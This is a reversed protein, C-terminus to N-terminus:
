HKATSHTAHASAAAPCGQMWAIGCAADAQSSTPGLRSLVTASILIMSLVFVAMAVPAYQVVRSPRLREWHPMQLHSVRRNFSTLAAALKPDSGRLAREIQSLLRQESRGLGM